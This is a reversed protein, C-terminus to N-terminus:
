SYVYRNSESLFNNVYDLNNNKLYIGNTYDKFFNFDEFPLFQHDKEKLKNESSIKSNELFAMGRVIVFADFMNGDFEKGWISSHIHKGCFSQDYSMPRNNFVECSLQQINFYNKLQKVAESVMGSGTTNNIIKSNKDSRLNNDIKLFDNRFHLFCAKSYKMLEILFQNGPKSYMLCNEVEASTYELLTNEVFGVDATLTHYFNKYVFYDMDGYIGGFKHLICLRAFDIKMIHSPLLNYLNKYQPYYDCVLNDIDEEDNWIKYEFDHFNKFWSEQCKFWLPHWKLKDKPAIQHIIKPVVDIM